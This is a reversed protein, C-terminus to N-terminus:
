LLDPVAIEETLLRIPIKLASVHVETDNNWEGFFGIVPFPFFAFQLLDFFINEALQLVIENRSIRLEGTLRLFYFFPSKEINVIVFLKVYMANRISRAPPRNASSFYALHFIKLM